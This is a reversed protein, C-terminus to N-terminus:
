AQGGTLFFPTGALAAIFATDAKLITAGMRVIKIYAAKVLLAKEIERMSFGGEPGTFIYIRSYAKQKSVEHAVRIWDEAPVHPHYILALSGADLGALAKEFRIPAEISIVQSASSQKAAERAIKQWRKEVAEFRGAAIEMESRECMIPQFVSAGFEQAKEVLLDMKGKKILAPLVTVPVSFGRTERKRSLITFSAIENRIDQLQAEAEWGEGDVLICLDGKQLRLSRM